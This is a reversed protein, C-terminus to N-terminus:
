RGLRRSKSLLLDVETWLQRWQSPEKGPLQVLASEDRVGTLDPDQLWHRLMDVAAARRRPDNSDIEHTWLSLDAHLWALAQNRFGTRTLDDPAPQDSGKGCGALAAARAANYRRSRRLDGSRRTEDKFADIYLGTSAAYLRKGPLQCAEALLVRQEVNILNDKRNILAPLRPELALLEKCRRLRQTFTQRSQDDDALRLQQPLTQRSQDDDALLELCKRIAVQAELFHGQQYLAEGKGGYALAQRPDIRIANEYARIGEDFKGSRCLIAGLRIYAPFYTNDVDIARRCSVIAEDLQKNLKYALALANYPDAREKDKRLAVAVTLYRISEEIRPPQTKMLFYGLYLNLWYDDPHRTQWRKLFSVSADINGVWQLAIGMLTLSPLPLDAPDPEDALAALTRGDGKMLAFLWRTYNANQQPDLALLLQFLHLKQQFEVWPM